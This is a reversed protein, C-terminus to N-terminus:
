GMQPQRCRSCSVRTRTLSSRIASRLSMRESNDYFIHASFSRRRFSEIKVGFWIKIAVPVRMSDDDDVSSWEELCLLSWCTLHVLGLARLVSDWLALECISM